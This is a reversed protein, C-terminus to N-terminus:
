LDLTIKLAAGIQTISNNSLHGVYTTFRTKNIARVQEGLAVSEKTLGGEGAKLVVHSPYIRAKHNRDTVPVIVLVPSSQNIADRSM